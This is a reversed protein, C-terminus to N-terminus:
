AVEEARSLLPETVQIWVLNPWEERSLARVRVAKALAAMEVRTIAATGLLRAEGTLREVAESGAEQVYGKVLASAGM